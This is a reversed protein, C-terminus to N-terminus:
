TSSSEQPQTTHTWPGTISPGRKSGTLHGPQAPHPDIRRLACAPHRPRLQRSSAAPGDTTPCPGRRPPSPPSSSASSRSDRTSRFWRTSCIARCPCSRMGVVDLAAGASLLYAVPGDTQLNVDPSHHLTIADRVVQTAATSLGVREAVELALKASSLTFDVAPVPSRLGTDHLLAAAFLLERDVDVDELHGVASGFLYTRYSHQLLAPSLRRHAEVEATETLVSRPLRLASPPVVARRGSGLHLASAARGGIIRAQAGLLPRILARREPPSLRGGTQAVWAQTGVRQTTSTM